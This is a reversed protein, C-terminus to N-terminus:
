KPSWLEWMKHVTKDMLVIKLVSMVASINRRTKVQLKLFILFKGEDVPSQSQTNWCTQNVSAFNDEMFSYHQRQIHVMEVLTLPLAMTYVRIDVGMGLSNTAIVIQVKGIPDKLSQIYM